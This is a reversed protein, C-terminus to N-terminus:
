DKKWDAIRFNQKSTGKELVVTIVSVQDGVSNYNDVLLPQFDKKVFSLKYFGYPFEISFFGNQDAKTRKFIHGASDFAIIQVGKLSLLTDPLNAQKRSYFIYGELVAYLNDGYGTYDFTKVRSKEQASACLTLVCFLALYFLAIPRNTTMNVAKGSVLLAKRQHPIPIGGAPVV